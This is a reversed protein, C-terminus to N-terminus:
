YLLLDLFPHMPLLYTLLQISLTFHSGYFSELALTELM